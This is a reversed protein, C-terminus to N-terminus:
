ETAITESQEFSGTERKPDEGSSHRTRTEQIRDKGKNRESRKDEQAPKLLRNDSKQLLYLVENVIVVFQSNSLEKTQAEKYREVLASLQRFFTEISSSPISSDSCIIYLLESNEFFSFKICSTIFSNPIGLGTERTFSIIASFFGTILSDDLSEKLIKENNKYHYLALGNKLIYIEQIRM